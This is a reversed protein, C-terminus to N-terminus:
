IGSGLGAVMASIAGLAPAFVVTWEAWKNGVPYCTGDATALPIARERDGHHGMHDHGARCGAMSALPFFLSGIPIVGQFAPWDSPPFRFEGKV